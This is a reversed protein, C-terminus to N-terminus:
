EIAFGLVAFNGPLEGELAQNYVAPLLKRRSLDGGGGFIVLTCSQPAHTINIGVTLPNKSKTDLM